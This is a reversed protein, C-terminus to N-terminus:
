KKLKSQIWDIVSYLPNMINSYTENDVPAELFSQEKGMGIFIPFSLMLYLIEEKHVEEHWLSIIYNFDIHDNGDLLIKTLLFYASILIALQMNKPGFFLPEVDIISITDENILINAFWLDGHFLYKEEKSLYMVFKEDQLIEKLKEKMLSDASNSLFYEFIQLSHPIGLDTYEGSAAELRKTFAYVGDVIQKTLEDNPYESVPSGILYSLISYTFTVDKMETLGYKYILSTLNDERYISNFLNSRFEEKQLQDGLLLKIILKPEKNHLFVKAHMADTLQIIDDKLDNNVIRSIIDQYKM